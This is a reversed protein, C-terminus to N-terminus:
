SAVGHVFTVILVSPTREIVRFHSSALVEHEIRAYAGRPIEGTMELQAEDTQTFLFYAHRYGSMDHDLRAVPNAIFSDLTKSSLSTFWEDVYNQYGSMPWPDNGAVGGVFSGAPAQRYFSAISAVENKSFHNAREKGYYSFLFAGTLAVSLALRMTPLGARRTSVLPVAGVVRAGLLALFPLSFLYVRFAIEGGYSNAGLAFAPSFALLVAPLWRRDRLRTRAWLFGVAAFLVYSASLLRDIKLVVLQQASAQAVNVQKVDANSLLAGIGQLMSPGNDVFFARAAFLIWGVAVGLALLPLSRRSICGTLALLALGAVLMFPTLQHSAAIALLLLAVLRYIARSREPSDLEVIQGDAGALGRPSRFHRLVVALVVLYLFYAEGQPSFYDQGIWNGLYFLLLASWQVRRDRTFSQFILLLPGAYALENVFPWWTAVTVMNNLGAGSQLLGNLTFFGPWDQYAVLSPIQQSLDVGHQSVVFNVIAVHKWAWTYRLTGYLISPTLHFIALLVVLHAFLSRGDLRRFAKWFGVLDVFLALYYFPPLVSLLGFDDIADPPRALALSGGWLAAAALAFGYHNALCVARERARQRFQRPGDMAIRVRLAELADASSVLMAFPDTRVFDSVRHFPALLRGTAKTRWPRLSALLHGAVTTMTGIVIAVAQLAATPRGTCAELLARAIGRPLTRVLYSREASLARDRGVLEAVMAKSRGEGYCRRLFYSWTGRAEPVHHRVSARPEYVLMSGAAQTVARICLETEECGAANTGTRGLSSTFGGALTLVERRFAMNAGIFNRVPAASSPMGCHSCGVIWDFEPPFWDPREREWWPIVGGGVGLVEPRTFHFVLSELWGPDAEADDDLFAVIEGTVAAIGTNRAGSLGQPERNAVVRVGALEARAREALNPNHDIVLVIELPPPEQTRVSHVAAVIEDWRKETYACIVVSTALPAMQRRGARSRGLSAPTEQAASTM